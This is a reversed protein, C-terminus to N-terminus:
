EVEKDECDECRNSCHEGCDSCIDGYIITAGCCNSEEHGTCNACERQYKVKFKTTDM